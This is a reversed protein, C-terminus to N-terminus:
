YLIQPYITKELCRDNSHDNLGAEQGENLEKKCIRLSSPTGVPLKFHYIGTLSLWCVTLLLQRSSLLVSTPRRCVRPWGQDMFGLM